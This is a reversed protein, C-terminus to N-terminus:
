GKSHASIETVLTPQEFGWSPQSETNRVTPMEGVKFSAAKYLVSLREWVTCVNGTTSGARSNRFSHVFKPFLHKQISQLYYYSSFNFLLTGCCVNWNSYDPRTQKNTEEAQLNPSCQQTYYMTAWCIRMHVTRHKLCYESYCDQWLHWVFSRNKRRQEQPLLLGYPLNFWIKILSKMTSCQQSSPFASEKFWAAM